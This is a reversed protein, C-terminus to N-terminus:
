AIRRLEQPLPWRPAFCGWGPIVPNSAVYEKIKCLSGPSVIGWDRTKAKGFIQVSALPNMSFDHRNRFHHSWAVDEQEGWALREDLPYKRMVDRKAVWYAGSLYMFKSLGSEEYPIINEASSIGAYNRVPEMTNDPCLCWDRYRSGDSNLIVNMAAKYEPGFRRWGDYWGDGLGIYDHMYVVNEYSAMSTIVNKKKTIWRPKLAEDFAVHRVKDRQKPPGGVVIVEYEPIRQKEIGDIIASVRDDAGATIIGFTFRM